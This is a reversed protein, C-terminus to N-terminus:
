HEYLELSRKLWWLTVQHQWSATSFIGRCDGPLGGWFEGRLRQIASPSFSNPWTVPDILQINTCTHGKFELIGLQIMSELFRRWFIELGGQINCSWVMQLYSLRITWSWGWGKWSGPPRLRQSISGKRWPGMSGPNDGAYSGMDM